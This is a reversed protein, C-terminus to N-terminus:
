GAIAALVAAAIIISLGIIFAQVIAGFYHAVAMNGRVIEREEDIKPTLRNLVKPILAAGILLLIFGLVAGIVTYTVTLYLNDWTIPMLRGGKNAPRRARKSQAVSNKGVAASFQRYM